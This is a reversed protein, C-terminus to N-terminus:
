RPLNEEETWNGVTLTIKHNNWLWNSGDWLLTMKKPPDEEIWGWRQTTDRFQGAAAM